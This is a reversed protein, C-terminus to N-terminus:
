MPGKAKGLVDEATDTHIGPAEGFPLNPAGEAPEEEPPLLGHAPFPPLTRASSGLHDPDSATSVSM